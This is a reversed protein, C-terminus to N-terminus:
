ILFIKLGNSEWFGSLKLNLPKGQTETILEGYNTVERLENMQLPMNEKLYRWNPTIDIGGQMIEKVPVATVVEVFENSKEQWKFDQVNIYCFNGLLESLGLSVTYVCKHEAVYEILKNLLSEDDMTVYLRFAAEKLLEYRIQTRAGEPRHRPVWYDNKTNILNVGMRFKKVPKVLQIGVKTGATNLVKLYHNEEKELGLIAGLVGLITVPPIISFTVPSTTSYFKRFHAFDGYLDFILVRRKM